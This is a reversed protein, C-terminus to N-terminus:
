SRRGLISSVGARRDAVCLWPRCGIPLLLLHGTSVAQVFASNAADRRGLDTDSTQARLAPGPTALPWREIVAASAATASATTATPGRHLSIRQYPSDVHLYQCGPLLGTSGM